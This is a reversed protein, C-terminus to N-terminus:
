EKSINNLYDPEMDLEQYNRNKPAHISLQMDKRVERGKWISQM